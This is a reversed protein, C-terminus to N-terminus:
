KTRYDDLKKVQGNVILLHQLPGYEEKGQENQGVPLCLALIISNDDRADETAYTTLSKTSLGLDM